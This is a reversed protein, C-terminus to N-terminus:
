EVDYGRCLEFIFPERAEDQDKREGMLVVDEESRDRRGRLVRGNEKL